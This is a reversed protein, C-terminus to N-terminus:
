PALRIASSISACPLGQPRKLAPDSIFNAPTAAFCFFFNLAVVSLLCLKGTAGFKNFRCNSTLSGSVTYTASM